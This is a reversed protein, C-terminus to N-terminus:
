SEKKELKARLRSIIKAKRTTNDLSPYDLSNLYNSMQKLFKKNPNATRVNVLTRDKPSFQYHNDMENWAQKMVDDGKFIRDDCVLQPM